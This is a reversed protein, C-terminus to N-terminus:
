NEGFQLCLMTGHTILSHPTSRACCPIPTNELYM